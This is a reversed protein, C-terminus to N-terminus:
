SSVAVTRATWNVLKEPRPLGSSRRTQFVDLLGARTAPVYCANATADMLGSALALHARPPRSWLLPRTRTAGAVTVAILRGLEPLHDLLGPRVM